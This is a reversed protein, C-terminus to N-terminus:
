MPLYSLFMSLFQFNEPYTYTRIQSMDFLSEEFINPLFSLELTSYTYYKWFFRVNLPFEYNLLLVYILGQLEFFVLYAPQL